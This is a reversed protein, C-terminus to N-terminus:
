VSISCNGYIQLNGDNFKSHKRQQQQQRIPNILTGIQLYKKILIKIM